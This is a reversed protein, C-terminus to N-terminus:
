RASGGRPPVRPWCLAVMTLAIPAILIRVMFPAHIYTHVPLILTRAVPVLTAADILLVDRGDGGDRLRWARLATWFWAVILAAILARGARGHGYTLMSSWRVLQRYPLLIGPWRGEPEPVAMGRRSDAPLYDDFGLEGREFATQIRNAVVHPDGPAVITLVLFLRNALLVVGATRVLAGRFRGHWSAEM